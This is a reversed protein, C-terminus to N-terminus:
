TPRATSESRTTTGSASPTPPARTRATSTTSRAPRRRSTTRSARRSRSRTARTSRSSRTTAPDPFRTFVGSNDGDDSLRFQMKVSYDEFTRGPTGSSASGASRQDARLERRHLRRPRVAGLRQRRHRRLAARLGPRPHARDRVPQRVAVEVAQSTTKGTADEVTVTATYTGPEPYTWSATATTAMDDDTGEVGFDWAYGIDDGDPDNAEAAFDVELPALGDAPRPRRPPSSRRSTNAAVGKGDVRFEDFNMEGSGTYVFYLPRGGADASRETITPASRRTSTSARPAATSRCPPWSRDTPRAPASRSPRRRGAPMAPTAHDVVDTM